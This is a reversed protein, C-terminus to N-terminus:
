LIIPVSGGDVSWAAGTVNSARTSCLFVIVAAVEDDTGMRGRPLGAATAELVQERAQGSREALQDALGGDATWSDGEIPGPAVANVLVGRGSWEDAFLRSLSLQAAKTVSYSPDLRRSPRKGSSSAVTVMRGGGAEAMSPALVRMLRMPGMVHLEWQEQWDADTLEDLPRARTAGAANVLAWPTGQCAALVREGADPATVDLELDAGHRAVGLVRAGEQKLMRVTAAGIGRTAGTVVCLKDDLGLNM